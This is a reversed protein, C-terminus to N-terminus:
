SPDGVVTIEGVMFGGCHPICYYPYKGVAQYTIEAVGGSNLFVSYSDDPSDVTYAECVPGCSTGDYNEPDDDGDYPATGGDGCDRLVDLWSNTSTITHPYRNGLFTVTAGVPVTLEVPQFESKEITVVAYPADQAPNTGAETTASAIGPLGAAASGAAVGKLLRRRSTQEAM